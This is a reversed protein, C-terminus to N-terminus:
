LFLLREEQHLMFHFVGWGLDFTRFGTTSHWSGLIPQLVYLKNQRCVYQCQFLLHRGPTGAEKGPAFALTLSPSPRLHAMSVPGVEACGAEGRVEARGDHRGWPCNQLKRKEQNQLTTARREGGRGM